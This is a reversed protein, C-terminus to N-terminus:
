MEVGTLEYLVEYPETGIFDANFFHSAYKKLSAFVQKV